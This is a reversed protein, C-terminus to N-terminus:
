RWDTPVLRIWHTKHSGFLRRISGSEYFACSVAFATPFDCAAPIAGEKDDKNFLLVHPLRSCFAPHRMSVPHRVARSGDEIYPVPIVSRDRHSSKESQSSPALTLCQPCDSNQLSAELCDPWGWGEGSEAFHTIQEAARPSCIYTCTERGVLGM